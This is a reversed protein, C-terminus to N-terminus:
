TTTKLNKLDTDLRPDYTPCTQESESRLLNALAQKANREQDAAKTYHAVESLTMHGTISQDVKIHM